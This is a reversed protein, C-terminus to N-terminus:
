NASKTTFIKEKYFKSQKSLEKDLTDPGGIEEMLTRRDSFLNTGLGLRDGDIQVGMAALTSPYMDITSFLRGQRKVAQAESNIFVNYITRKYGPSTILNNYYATQMGLHDGSIIITTNEAFDQDQIWEVFESVQKSSCAHVNDYQNDYPTPCTKDLYGDTFHTDVTLMQLNFPKDLQSLRQLETKAFEFMKKDEYGWWVHYDEPIQKTKKAYKYDQISYNGHQLLLKDRGGFAATSGMIFTQNYGQGELIDGLSYAGPLFQKLTDMSNHDQGLGKAKLPIGATQATLGAVTWTTGFVPLAGGLGTRTHSFSTNQPNTALAELEPVISKSAQGGNDKSMLTNEMSELYIYILNRPQEPFTLKASRPEIYYDEFVQSTQGLSLLFGVAGFSAMLVVLSVSFIVGAYGVKFRLPIRSPNIKVLKKRGFLSLDAKIYIRNRYFDIVPLLLLFFIFLTIMLNDRFAELFSTTNGDILGNSLYFIIEDIQADGFNELKYRSTVILLSSLLLLVLISVKAILRRASPNNKLM